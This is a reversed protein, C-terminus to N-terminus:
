RVWVCEYEPHNYFKATLSAVFVGDAYRKGISWVWRELKADCYDMGDILEPLIYDAGLKECRSIDKAEGKLLMKAMSLNNM